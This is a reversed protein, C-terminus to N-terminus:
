TGHELNTFRACALFNWLNLFRVLEPELYTGSRGALPNLVVPSCTVEFMAQPYRKKFMAIADNLNRLGIYCHPCVTDLVFEINFHLDPPVATKERVTTGLSIGAPEEAEDMPSLLDKISAMTTFSLVVSRQLKPEVM